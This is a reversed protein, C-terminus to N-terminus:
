RSGIAQSLIATATKQEHAGALKGAAVDLTYQKRGVLPMSTVEVTGAIARICAAGFAEAAQGVKGTFILRWLFRVGGSNEDYYYVKSVDASWASNRLSLFEALVAPWPGQSVRLLLVRSGDPRTEFKVPEAGVRKLAHDLRM